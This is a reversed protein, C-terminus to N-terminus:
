LADTIPSSGTTLRSATFSHLDRDEPRAADATIEAPPEGRGALVDREERAARM